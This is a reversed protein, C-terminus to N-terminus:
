DKYQNLLLRLTVFVIDPGVQLSEASTTCVGPNDPEPQLPLHSPFQVCIMM